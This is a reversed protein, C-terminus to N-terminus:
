AWANLALWLSEDVEAQDPGPELGRAIAEPGNARWGPATDRRDDDQM